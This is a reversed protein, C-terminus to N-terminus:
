GTRRARFRHTAYLALGVAILGISVPLVWRTVSKPEELTVAAVTEGVPSPGGEAMTMPQGGSGKAATGIEGNVGTRWVKNQISDMVVVNPPFQFERQVQPFPKNIQVEQIAVTRVVAVKGDAPSYGTGTVKSPFYVGPSVEVFADVVDDGIPYKADESAWIILRTILYNHQKSLWVEIKAKEHTLAIVTYERGAEMVRKLKAPRKLENLVTALPARFQKAGPVNFLCLGLPDGYLPIGATAIQGSEAMLGDPSSKRDFSRFTAGKGYTDSRQGNTTQFKRRYEDGVRWYEITETGYDLAPEYSVRIKVHFSTIAEVTAQHRSTIDEIEPDGATVGALSCALTGLVVM